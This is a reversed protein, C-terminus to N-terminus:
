IRARPVGAALRDAMEQVRDEPYGRRISGKWEFTVERLQGQNVLHRLLESDCGLRRQAEPPRLL